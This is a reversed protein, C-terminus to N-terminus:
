CGSEISIGGGPRRFQGRGGAGSGACLRGELLSAWYRVSSGEFSVLNDVDLRRYRAGSAIVVSRARVREKSTLTLLFRGEDSLTEGQLSEVEDPIAMEVGFQQAQSYARGM